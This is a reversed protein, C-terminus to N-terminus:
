DVVPDYVDVHVHLLVQPLMQRQLMVRPCSPCKEEVSPSRRCPIWLGLDRLDSVGFGRRSLLVSLLKLTRQKSKRAAQRDWRVSEDEDCSRDDELEERAPERAAHLADWKIRKRGCRIYPQKSLVLEQYIWVRRFWPRSFIFQHNFLLTQNTYLAANV